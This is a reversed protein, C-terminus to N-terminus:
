LAISYLFRLVVGYVPGIVRSLAGTVVLALLIFGGYPAIARIYRHGLGNPLAWQVIHSGDLPPLPVLNFLALVVNLGIAM